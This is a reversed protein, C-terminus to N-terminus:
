GFFGSGPAPEFGEQARDPTPQYGETAQLYIARLELEKVSVQDWLQATLADFAQMPGYQLLLQGLASSLLAEREVRAEATRARLWILRQRLWLQRDASDASPGPASIVSWEETLRQLEYLDVRRYADNVRSIFATRREKEAPEQAFDPHARRALDRYVRQVAKAPNQAGSDPEVETFRLSSAYDPDIGSGAPEAASLESLPDVLPDPLAVSSAYPDVGYRMTHARRHLEPDGTVTARAELILLDLEDLRDYLSGLQAHNMRTLRDLDGRSTELSIQAEALATEASAVIDELTPPAAEPRATSLATGELSGAGDAVAATAVDM